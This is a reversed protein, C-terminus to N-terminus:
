GPVIREALAILSENQYADLFEPTWDAADARADATEVAAVDALRERMPHEPAPGPVMLRAGAGALLGKLAERRGVERHSPSGENNDGHDLKRFVDTAKLRAGRM